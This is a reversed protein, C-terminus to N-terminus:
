HSRESTMVYVTAALMSVGAYKPIKKGKTQIEAIMSAQSTIVIYVPTKPLGQSDNLMFESQKLITVSTAVGHDPISQTDYLNRYITCEVTYM